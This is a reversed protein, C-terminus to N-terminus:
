ERAQKVLECIMRTKGGGTPATLVTAQEGAELAAYLEALGREQHPWLPPPTTVPVLEM